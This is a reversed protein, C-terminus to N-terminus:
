VLCLERERVCVSETVCVSERACVCVCEMERKKESERKFLHHRCRRMYRPHRHGRERVCVSERKLVCVCVCVCLSEKERVCVRVCTIGVDACMDHTSAAASCWAVLVGMM